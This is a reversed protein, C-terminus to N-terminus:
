PIRTSGIHICPLNFALCTSHLFHIHSSCQFSSADKSIDSHGKFSLLANAVWMDDKNSLCAELQRIRNSLGVKINLVDMSVLIDLLTRSKAGNYVRDGATVLLAQQKQVLPGNEHSCEQKHNLVKVIAVTELLAAVTTGNLSTAEEPPLLEELAIM